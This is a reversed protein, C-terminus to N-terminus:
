TSPRSSPYAWRLGWKKLYLKASATVVPQNQYLLMPWISETM